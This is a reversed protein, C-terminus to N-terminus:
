DKAEGLVASQAGDAFSLEIKEGAQHSKASTIISGDAARVLAYGRELVKKFSTTSLLRGATDVRMKNKDFIAKVRDEMQSTVKDLRQTARELQMTPEGLIRGWNEIDRGLNQLKRELAGTLRLVRDDIWVRLEGIVPTAIEAAATPTPARLDAAYDILTTDTEHGVASIIPLRAEAVARVVNEDNFAMLDELSGGGRAVILVDPLPIDGELNDFGRIAHAIEEAAGEGQVLVPWILVHVPLRDRLRHIIDRIVAGDPSTIVGIVKPMSPIPKKRESDFLGEQSLKKKREELQKLLAGEGALEIAEVVIQYKSRGAYTTLKGTIIVELGDEPETALNAVDGRWCVSDLTDKDDKLTFYVHGSAARMVGSIEGRVRVHGFADEVKKKLSRSLESLSYVRINDGGTSGKEDM